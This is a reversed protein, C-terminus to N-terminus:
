GQKDIRMRALMGGLTMWGFFWAAKVPHLPRTRLEVRGARIARCIAAADPEADVLTFTTGMQQLHHLDTNGVLPKANARAWSMARENFNLYRMYLSNVEVADVWCAHQDLRAGMASGVPYFAHPVVVLGEPHADKLRPIDDFRRVRLTAQAPFNILLIHKGEVTREIGRILVFGRERAWAIDNTMDLQRNHLTVALAHYGLRIAHEVLDRTTHAIRDVRDHATHAHLEVKLM